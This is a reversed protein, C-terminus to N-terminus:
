DESNYLYHITYVKYSEKIEHAKPREDKSLDKITIGCSNIYEEFKALYWKKYEKYTIPNPKKMISSDLRNITNTHRKIRKNYEIWYINKIEDMLKCLREKDQEIMFPLFDRRISKLHDNTRRIQWKLEKDTM